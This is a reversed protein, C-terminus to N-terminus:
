NEPTWSSDVILARSETSLINNLIAALLSSDQGYDWQITKIHFEHSHQTVVYTIHFQVIKM